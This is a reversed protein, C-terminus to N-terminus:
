DQREATDVSFAKATAYVAKGAFDLCRLGDGDTACSITGQDRTVVVPVGRETWAALNAPTPYYKKGNKGASVILLAPDVADLFAASSSTSSGHHPALLVDATLDIKKAVLISEKKKGIDAPFLFARSGHRYRLVLSADNVSLRGQEGAQVAGGSIELNMDNIEAVKYGSEPLVVETGQRVAQDIIEQYNGEIHSDGNIFLKKPRFHALIFDMGNFHDSHPHTIVAQDLRWVRQQWLYPAIVQEGINLRSQRNGGGDILVRSGDAMKLFSSTGQGVDLYAVKSRGSRGPTFLEWTFNLVLLIMGVLVISRMIRRLNERNSSFFWLLILLGYCLIEATTPTITWVSAWPLAAGLVTCFHGAQIGLGGIKLLIVGVQPAIFLCPIAALGWPLAWFCLFPEVLLNMVPGILSVRHFHVLMFPLTGLT